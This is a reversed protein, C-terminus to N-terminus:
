RVIAKPNHMAPNAAQPDYGTPADVFPPDSDFLNRVQLALNFHETVDVGLYLDVTQYSSVQQAPTITTNDYGSLHNFTVRGRFDGHAVGADAQMRFKQPFAITNLVDAFGSGPVAQLVPSLYLHGVGLDALYPVVAEADAFTFGAHLQLRYTATVGPM